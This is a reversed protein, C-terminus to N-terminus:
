RKRRKTKTGSLLDRRHFAVQPRDLLLVPHDLLVVVAKELLECAKALSEDVAQRVDLQRLHYLSGSAM